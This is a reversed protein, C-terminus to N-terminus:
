GPRIEEVPGGERQVAWGGHHRDADLLKDSKIRSRKTGRLINIDIPITNRVFKVFALSILPGFTLDSLSSPWPSPHAMGHPRGARLHRERRAGARRQVPQIPPGPPRDRHVLRGPRARLADIGGSYHGHRGGRSLRAESPAARGSVSPRFM